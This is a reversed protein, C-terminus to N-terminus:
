NEYHGGNAFLLANMEEDTPKYGASQEHTQISSKVQEMLVENQSIYDTEDVEIIIIAEV